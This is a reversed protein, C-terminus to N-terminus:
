VAYRAAVINAQVANETTDSPYGATMVGEYFTDQGSHSNDGGIGLIIAGEKNMPYYGQPRQGNYFTSLDGSQANGGRIAWLNSSDDLTLSHPRHFTIEAPVNNGHLGSRKQPGEEYVLRLGSLLILPALNGFLM